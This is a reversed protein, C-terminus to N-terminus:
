CLRTPMQVVLTGIFDEKTYYMWTLNPRALVVTEKCTRITYFIDSDFYLFTCIIFLM